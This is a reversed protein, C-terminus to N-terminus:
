KCQLPAFKRYIDGHPGGELKNTGRVCKYLPIDHKDAGAPEYMPVDPVDSLYGRRALDVVSAASKWAKPSFLPQNTKADVKYGYEQFLKELAMALEAPDGVVRPCRQVVWRFNRAIMTALPVKFIEFCKSSLAEYIAKDWKFITDRMAVYFKKRLGHSKSIEIMQMAHFIDKKIRGLIPTGSPNINLSATALIAPEEIDVAPSLLNCALINDAHVNDMPDDIMFDHHILSHLNVTDSEDLGLHEEISEIPSVTDLPDTLYLDDDQDEISVSHEQDLHRAHNLAEEQGLPLSHEAIVHGLRLSSISTVLKFPPPGFEALTQASAKRQKETLGAQKGAAKSPIYLIASAEPMIVKQITILLRSRTSTKVPISCFTIPQSLDVIGLAIPHTEDGSLLTVETGGATDVTVKEVLKVKSAELYIQKLVYVDLSAYTIQPASLKSYEWEESQRPGIDKDLHIQLVQAAISTLSTSKVPNLLNRDRCISLIDVVNTPEGLTPFQKSLRTIDAKLNRGIKFIHQSALLNALSTPM